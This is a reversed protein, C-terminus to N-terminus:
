QVDIQRVKRNIVQLALKQAGTIWATQPEQGPVSHVFSPKEGRKQIMLVNKRRGASKGPTGMFSGRQQAEVFGPRATIPTGYPGHIGTGGIVHPAHPAISEDIGVRIIWNGGGGAGGPRYVSTKDKQVARRLRGTEGRPGHRKMYRVASTGAEETAERVEDTYDRVAKFRISFDTLGETKIDFEFAM